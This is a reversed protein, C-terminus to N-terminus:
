EGKKNVKRWLIIIVLFLITWVLITTILSSIIPWVNVEGEMRLGNNGLSRGEFNRSGSVINGNFGRGTMAENRFEAPQRNNRNTSNYNGNSYNASINVSGQDNNNASGKSNNSNQINASDVGQTQSQSQGQLQNDLQSNDSPQVNNNGSDSQNSTGVVVQNDASVRGSQTSGVTIQQSLKNSYVFRQLKNRYSSNGVSVVTFVVGAIVLISIIIIWVKKSNSM